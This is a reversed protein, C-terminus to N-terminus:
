FPTSGAGARKGGSLSMRISRRPGSSSEKPVGGFNHGLWRWLLNRRLETRADM